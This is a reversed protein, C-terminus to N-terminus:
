PQTGCNLTDQYAGDKTKIDLRLRYNELVVHEVATYDAPIQKIFLYFTKKIEGNPPLTHITKLGMIDGVEKIEEFPIGLPSTGFEIGLAAPIEDKWERWVRTWPYESTHWLIGVLLGKGPNAVCGWGQKVQASNRYNVVIGTKFKMERLNVTHSEFKIAPWGVTPGPLEATVKSNIFGESANCDLLVSEDLFPPGLSPHQLINYDKETLNRNKFHDTIRCVSSDPSLFYERTVSMKAIPLDCSVRLLTGTKTTSQELIKWRVSTAEGHFPIGKEQDAASSHGSRDFCLFLGAKKSPDGTWRNARWSFPNLDNGKLTFSSLAGGHLNVVMRVIGNDLSATEEESSVALGAHVFGICALLLTLEKKM